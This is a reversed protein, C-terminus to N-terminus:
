SPLAGAKVRNIYAEGEDQQDRYTETSSRIQSEYVHIFGEADVTGYVFTDGGVYVSHDGPQGDILEAFVSDIMTEREEQNERHEPEWTKLKGENDSENKM